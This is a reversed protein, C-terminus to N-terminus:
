ILGLQIARAVAHSRNTAHLKEMINAAHFKVTRESISLITSVEWTGKGDRIWQLIEQERRTLPNEARHPASGHDTMRRCAEHLHPVVQDLIARHRAHPRHRGFALSLVTLRRPERRDSVAHAIGERTCPEGGTRDARYADRALSFEFPQRKRLAYRVVPDRHLCAPDRYAAIANADYNYGRIREIGKIEDELVDLVGIVAADFPVIGGLETLAADIAHPGDAQLLRHTIGLLTGLETRSFDMGENEM